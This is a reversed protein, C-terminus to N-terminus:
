DRGDLAFRDHIHLMTALADEPTKSWEIIKKGWYMRYYGHIVGRRLMEHQTANWLDDHTEARELQECTYLLGRRDGAHKALTKRAWDPLAAISDRSASHLAFNFALERRVILEELYEEAILKHRAAYDRVALAIELSSIQGFHLYASLQSSAH